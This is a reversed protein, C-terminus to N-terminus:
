AIPLAANLVAMFPLSNLSPLLHRPPPPPSYTNLQPTSSAPSSPWHAPVFAVPMMPRPPFSFPLSHIRTALDWAQKPPFNPTTPDKRPTTPSPLLTAAQLDGRDRPENYHGSVFWSMRRRSFPPLKTSTHHHDRRQHHSSSSYNRTFLTVIRVQGLSSSSPSSSEVPLIIAIHPPPFNFFRLQLRPRQALLVVVTRRLSAQSTPRAKKM